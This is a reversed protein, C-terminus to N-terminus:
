KGVIVKPNINAIGKVKRNLKIYEEKINVKTPIKIEVAVGHHTNKDEVLTMTIM